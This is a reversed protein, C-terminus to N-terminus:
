IILCINVAKITMIAGIFCLKRLIINIVVLIVEVWIHFLQTTRLALSWFLKFYFFLLNLLNHISFNFASIINSSYGNNSLIWTLSLNYNNFQIPTLTQDYFTNSTNINLPSQWYGACSSYLNFWSSPGSTDYNWTTCSFGKFFVTLCVALLLM